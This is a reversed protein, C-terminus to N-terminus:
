QELLSEDELFSHPPAPLATEQQEKDQTPNPVFVFWRARFGMCFSIIGLTFLLM